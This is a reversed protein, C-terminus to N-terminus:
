KLNKKMGEIAGIITGELISFTKKILNETEDLIEIVTEKSLVKGESEEETRKKLSEIEKRLTEIEKKLEEASEKGAM